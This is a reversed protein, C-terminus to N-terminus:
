SKHSIGGGIHLCLATDPGLSRQFATLPFTPAPRGSPFAHIAFVTAEEVEAIPLLVDMLADKCHACRSADNARYAADEMESTHVDSWRLGWEEALAKADAREELALSPSVATVAHVREVGLVQNAVWALLASDAGGSFAVVLRDYNAVVQRLRELSASENVM